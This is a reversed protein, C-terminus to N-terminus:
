AVKSCWAGSAFDPVPKALLIVVSVQPVSLDDQSFLELEILDGPDVFGAKGSMETQRSEFIQQNAQSAGVDTGLLQFVSEVNM